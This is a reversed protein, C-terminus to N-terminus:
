LADADPYAGTSGTNEFSGCRVFNKEKLRFFHVWGGLFYPQLARLIVSGDVTAAAGEDDGQAITDQRM